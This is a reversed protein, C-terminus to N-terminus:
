LLDNMSKLVAVVDDDQDFLLWILRLLCSHGACQEQKICVTCSRKMCKERLSINLFDGYNCIAHYVSDDFSYHKIYKALIEISPFAKRSIVVAVNKWGGKRKWRDIHTTIIESFAEEVEGEAAVTAGIPKTDIIDICEYGIIPVRKNLKKSVVNVCRKIANIDEDSIGIHVILWKNPSLLRIM